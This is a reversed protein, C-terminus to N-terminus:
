RTVRANHINPMATMSVAIPPLVDVSRVWIPPLGSYQQLRHSTRHLPHGFLICRISAPRIRHSCTGECSEFCRFEDSPIVDLHSIALISLLSPPPILIPSKSSPDLPLGAGLPLPLMAFQNALSPHVVSVHDHEHFSILLM